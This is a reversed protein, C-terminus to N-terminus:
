KGARQDPKRNLPNCAIHPSRSLRPGSRPGVDPSDPHNPHREIPPGHRRQRQNMQGGAACSRRLHLPGSSRSIDSHPCSPSAPAVPQSHRCRQRCARFAGRLRTRDDVPELTPTLRRRATTGAAVAVCRLRIRIIRRGVRRRRKGTRHNLRPGHDLRTRHNLRASGLRTKQLRIRREGAGHRRTRRDTWPHRVERRQNRLRRVVRRGGRGGRRHGRRRWHSLRGIVRGGSLRSVVRRGSM